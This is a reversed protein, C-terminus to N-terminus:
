PIDTVDLDDAQHMVIVLCLPKSELEFGRCFCYGSKLVWADGAWIKVSNKQKNNLNKLYLRVIYEQRATKTAFAKGRSQNQNQEIVVAKPELLM